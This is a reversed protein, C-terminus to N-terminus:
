YAAYTLDEQGLQWRDCLLFINMPSLKAKSESSVHLATKGQESDRDFPSAQRKSLLLQLGEINGSKAYNFVPSDKPLIRFTDLHFKWGSYAKYGAFEWAAHNLWNPLRCLASFGYTSRQRRKARRVVEQIIFGKRTRDDWPRAGEFTEPFPALALLSSAVLDQSSKFSHQATRSIVSVSGEPLTTVEKMRSIIIDPQRQIQLQM